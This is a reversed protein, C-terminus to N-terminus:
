PSAATLLPALWIPSAIWQGDELQDMKVNLQMSEQLLEYYDRYVSLGLNCFIMSHHQEDHNEFPPSLCNEVTWLRYTSPIKMVDLVDLIKTTKPWM